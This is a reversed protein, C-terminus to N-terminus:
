HYKNYIYEYIHRISYKYFESRYLEDAGHSLRIPHENIIEEIPARNLIEFRRIQTEDTLYPLLNLITEYDILVLPAMNELVNSDYNLFELIFHISDIKTGSGDSLYLERLRQSELVYKYNGMGFGGLMGREFHYQALTFFDEESRFRLDQLIFYVRIDITVTKPYNLREFEPELEFTMASDFGGSHYYYHKAIDKVIDIMGFNIDFLDASYPIEKFFYNDAYQYLRMVFGFSKPHRKYESYFSLLLSTDTQKTKLHDLIQDLLDEKRALYAYFAQYSSVNEVGVLDLRNGFRIENSLHTDRKTDCYRNIFQAVTDFLYPYESEPLIPTEFLHDLTEYASWYRCISKRLISDCLAFTNQHHNIIAHALFKNREQYFSLEPDSYKKLLLPSNYVYKYVQAETEYGTILYQRNAAGNAFTRLDVKDRIFILLIRYCDKWSWPIISPFSDYLRLAFKSVPVKLNNFKNKFVLADVLRGFVQTIDTEDKLASLHEIEPDKLNYGLLEPIEINGFKYIRKSLAGKINVDLYNSLGLISKEPEVLYSNIHSWNDESLSEITTCKEETSKKSKTNETIIGCHFSQIMLYYTLFYHSFLM